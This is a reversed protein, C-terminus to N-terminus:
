GGHCGWGPFADHRRRLRAVAVLRARGPRRASLDAPWLLRPGLRVGRAHLRRGAGAMRLLRGQSIANKGRGCVDAADRGMAAPSTVAFASADSRAGAGGYEGPKS